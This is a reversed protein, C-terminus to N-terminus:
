TLLYFLAWSTLLLGLTTLRGTPTTSFWLANAIISDSLPRIISQILRDLNTIKMYVDTPGGFPESIEILQETLDEQDSDGTIIKQKPTVQLFGSPSIISRPPDFPVTISLFVPQHDSLLLTKISDYRHILPTKLDANNKKKKLLTVDDSGYTSQFLIRDCWSPSRKSNYIATNVHYKYTPQFNIPAEEFENLLDMNKKGINLEDYENVLGRILSASSQSPDQLSLLRRSEESSHRYKEATRYNLDGMIFTHSNPKLLSYGDGFDLSRALDTLSQIRSKYYYEGEGAPLHVNVFSLDVKKGMRNDKGNLHYTLRLGVGGKLSSYFYGCSCSATRIKDFKLPYPTIAIMGIAGLHCVSLTQFKVDKLGYKKYLAEILLSTLALLYNNVKEEFSAELVSCLEEVGFIYLLALEDPLSEAIKPILLDGNLRQRNLNYSLLYLPLSELSSM